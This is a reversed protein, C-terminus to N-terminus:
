FNNNEYLKSLRVNHKIRVDSKYNFYIPKITSKLYVMRMWRLIIDSGIVILRQITIVMTM